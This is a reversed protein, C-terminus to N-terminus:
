LAQATFTDLITSSSALPLLRNFITVTFTTVARTATCEFFVYQGPMVSVLQVGSTPISTSSVVGTKDAFNCVKCLITLNAGSKREPWITMQNTVGVMQVVNTFGTAGNLFSVDTWNVASPTIDRIALTRTRGGRVTPLLRSYYLKNRM